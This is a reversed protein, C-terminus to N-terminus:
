LFSLANPIVISVMSLSDYRFKLKLQETIAIGNSQEEMESKWLALELIPAVDDQLYEYIALRSEISDFNNIEQLEEPIRQLMDHINKKWVQVKITGLRAPINRRALFSYTMLSAESVGRNWWPLSVEDIFQEMEDYFEIAVLNTCGDFVNKGIRKVTAPIRIRELSTCGKFARHDIHELGESLEVHILQTCGFFAISSIAKVNSPITIRQLSTCNCFVGQEIRELKERLEVNMLQTCGDFAGVRIEKVTSPITIQELSICEAFARDGIRKLGERFEIHRLQHCGYFADMVIVKITSPINIRRLSTCGWFAVGDIRRLGECLEVNRLQSCDAFAGRGIVKVSPDVVKVHTVNRPIEEGSRGTYIFPQSDM